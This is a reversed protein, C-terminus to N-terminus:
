LLEEIFIERMCKVVAHLMAAAPGKREEKLPMASILQRSAHLMSEAKGCTAAHALRIPEADCLFLVLRNKRFFFGAKRMVAAIVYHETAPIVLYKQVSAVNLCEIRCGETEPASFADVREKIEQVSHYARLNIIQREKM